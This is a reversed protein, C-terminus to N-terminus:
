NSRDDAGEGGGEGDEATAEGPCASVDTKLKLGATAAGLIGTAKTLTALLEPLAGPDLKMCIPGVTLYMAGCDCREVTTFSGQAVVVRSMSGGLLTIGLGATGQGREHHYQNHNENDDTL